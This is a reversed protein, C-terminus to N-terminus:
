SSCQETCTRGTLTSLYPAPPPPTPLPTSTEGPRFHGAGAAWDDPLDALGTRLRKLGKLFTKSLVLCGHAVTRFMHAAEQLTSLLHLRCVGGTGCLYSLLEASCGVGEDEYSSLTFVKSDAEAGCLGKGHM